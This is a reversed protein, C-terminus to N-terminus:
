KCSLGVPVCQKTKISSSTASAVSRCAYNSPCGSDDICGITCAKLSTKIKTCRNGDAGCDSDAACTQCLKSEDSMPNYRPNADVGHIGFMSNFSYGQDSDLGATLESVKVPVLKESTQNYLAKLLREASAETGANSFDTTTIVNLNQQDAKAPNGWFAQGLAYTDCGNALVIQYTKPMEAGAIKSDDMDGEETKKWNALAFGYLPGSHGEFIIVERHALSDRMDQELIKGGADTDPDPGVVNQSADGPHFISIEVKVSKGNSKITKTLPGSTRLYKDYSAVPSKFGDRVLQNYLNRSGTIDYRSWYDHGFHVGVTIKGDALLRDYALWADKSRDQKVITMAITELKDAPQTGPDWGDWPANRYWEHNFELNAMEENTPKGIKLNFKSGGLKTILTPTGAVQVQYDFEYTLGSKVKPAAEAESAFRVLAGLGGYNHNAEEEEKDIIYQNLFWSVALNKLQVLEQARRLKESASKNAYTDELTVTSKGSVFYERASSSYYNDEKGEGVIVDDDNSDAPANGCGSAWLGISLFAALARKTM